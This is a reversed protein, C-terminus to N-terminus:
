EAPEDQWGSDALATTVIREIEERVEDEVEFGDGNPEYPDPYTAELEDAYEDEAIDVDGLGKAELEAALRSLAAAKAEETADDPMYTDAWDVGMNVTVKAYRVSEALAYAAAALLDHEWYELFNPVAKAAECFVALGADVQSRPTNADSPQFPNDDDVDALDALFEALAKPDDHVAFVPDGNTALYFVPAPDEATEAVILTRNTGNNAYYGESTDSTTYIARPNILNSPNM